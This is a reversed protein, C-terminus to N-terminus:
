GPASHLFDGEQQKQEGAGKKDEDRQHQQEPRQEGPDPRVLRRRGDEQNRGPHRQGSVFM